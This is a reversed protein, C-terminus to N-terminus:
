KKKRYIQFYNKRFKLAGVKSVELFRQLDLATFYSFQKKLVKQLEALRM